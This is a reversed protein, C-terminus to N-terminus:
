LDKALEAMNPKLLDWVDSSYEGHQAEYQERWREQHYDANIQQIQEETMEVEMAQRTMDYHPVPNSQMAVVHQMVQNLMTQYKQDQQDFLGKLEDLSIGSSASAASAAKPPSSTPPSSAPVVPQASSSSGGDVKPKVDMKLDKIIPRCLTKIDDVKMGDTVEVHLLAAM